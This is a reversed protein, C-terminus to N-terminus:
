IKINQLELILGEFSNIYAKVQNESIANGAPQEILDVFDGYYIGVRDSKLIKLEQQFKELLENRTKNLLYNIGPLLANVEDEKLISSSKEKRTDVIQGSYMGAYGSELTQKEFLLVRLREIKNM